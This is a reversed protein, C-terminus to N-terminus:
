DLIRAATSPKAVLEEPGLVLFKIQKAEPFNEQNLLRFALFLHHFEKDHLIPVLILHQSEEIKIHKRFKERRKLSPELRKFDICGKLSEVKDSPVGEIKLVDASEQYAALFLTANEFIDQQVSRINPFESYLFPLTDTVISLFPIGHKQAIRIAQFSALNATGLGLVLDATKLFDELQRMYSPMDPVNPFVRVPLSSTYTRLFPSNEITNLTVEFLPSLQEFLFLQRPSKLHDAVIEIRPKTM